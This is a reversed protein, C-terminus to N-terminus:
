LEGPYSNWGDPASWIGGFNWSGAGISFLPAIVQRGALASLRQAFDMGDRGAGVSCGAMVIVADDALSHKWGAIHDAYSGLTEACFGYAGIALEGPMGHGVLVLEQVRGLKNLARSIDLITDDNEGVWLSATQPQLADQLIDLYELGRDFVFLSRGQLPDRDAEVSLSM